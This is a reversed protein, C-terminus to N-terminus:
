AGGVSSVRPMGDDELASEERAEDVRTPRGPLRDLDKALGPDEFNIATVEPLRDVYIRDLLELLQATL